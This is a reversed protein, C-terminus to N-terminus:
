KMAQIFKAIQRSLHDYAEKLEAYEEQIYGLDKTMELLVQIENCSGLATILFHKFDNQYYKRGYGEAINLPISIAARRMQSGIEYLEHRPFSATLKHVLLSMEYSKEYIALEKYSSM